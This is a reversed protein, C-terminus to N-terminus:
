RMSPYGGIRLILEDGLKSISSQFENEDAAHWDARNGPVADNGTFGIYLIDEKDFGGVGDLDHGFCLTAVSISAEGVRPSVGDDGNTDGWIGYILKDNCVIAMVSLPKMGWDRPNFTVWEPKKGTNGFVVYDHVFPNLDPVGNKYTSIYGRMATMNQVSHANDCRGDDNKTILGDCDIDMNALKGNGGQLYIVGYDNLHDGCYTFSNDNSNVMDYFGSQLPTKCSGQAVVADYFEKVNDPIDRSWASIFLLPLLCIKSLM